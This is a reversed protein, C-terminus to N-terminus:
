CGLAKIWQLTCHRREASSLKKTRFRCRKMEICMRVVLRNRRFNAQHLAAPRWPAVLRNRIKISADLRPESHAYAYPQQLSGAM